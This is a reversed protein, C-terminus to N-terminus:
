AASLRAGAVGLLLALLGLGALAMLWRGAPDPLRRLLPALRASRGIASAHLPLASVLTAYLYVGSVNELHASRALTPMVARLATAPSGGFSGFWRAALVYIVAHLAVFLALRLAMDLPIAAAADWRGMGRGSRAHLLLGLWNVVFVVPLGNFLVQRLFLRLAPGGDALMGAFGPTLAVFISLLPVLTALSALLANRALRPPHTAPPFVDRM